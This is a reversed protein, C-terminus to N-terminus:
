RFRLARTCYSSVWYGFNNACSGPSKTARRVVANSDLRYASARFCSLASTKNYTTNQEGIRYQVSVAGGCATMM